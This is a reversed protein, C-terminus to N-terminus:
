TRLPNPANQYGHCSRFCARTENMIAGAVGNMLEPFCKEYDTYQPCGDKGIQDLEAQLHAQTALFCALLTVAFLLSNATTEYGATLFVFINGFLTDLTIKPDGAGSEIPGVQHDPFGDPLPAALM